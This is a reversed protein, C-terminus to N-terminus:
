GRKVIPLSLYVMYFIGGLLFLGYSTNHNYMNIKDQLMQKYKEDKIDSMEGDESDFKNILEDIKNIQEDELEKRLNYEENELDFLKEEIKKYKITSDDPSINEYNNFFGVVGTMTKNLDVELNTFKNKFYQYRKEKEAM